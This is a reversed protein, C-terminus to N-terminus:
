QPTKDLLVNGGRRQAARSDWGRRIQDELAFSLRQDSSIAHAREILTQLSLPESYPLAFLILNGAGAVDLIHLQPFVDEYTRVMSDYLPNSGRSWVNGAVVGRPTLARRAAHLFERTALHYPISDSSFADLIILDYPDTCEEVFKRGDRVHARLAPGDRFGFFQRAVDVVDPDIDVADIVASPYHKHLFSPITGGGLGIVLVRKPPDIIALSALMARVYALEIHDPDGVKVVSQRAGNREFSLTRLGQQDETVVITNYESEKEYVVKSQAFTLWGLILVTACGAHIAYRIKM